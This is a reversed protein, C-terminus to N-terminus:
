RNIGDAVLQSKKKEISDSEIRRCGGVKFSVIDGRKIMRKVTCKHVKLMAAVEATTLTAKM